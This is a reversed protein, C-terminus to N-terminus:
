ARTELIKDQELGALLKRLNTSREYLDKRFGEVVLINRQVKIIEEDKAQLIKGKVKDLLIQNRITEKTIGQYMSIPIKRLEKDDMRKKVIQAEVQESFDAYQTDYARQLNKGHAILDALAVLFYSKFRDISELQERIDELIMSDNTLHMYEDIIIKFSKEGVSCDIVSYSADVEYSKGSLPARSSNNLGLNM